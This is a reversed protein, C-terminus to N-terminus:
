LKKLVAAVKADFLAEWEPAVLTDCDEQAAGPNRLQQATPTYYIYGNTYGAVFTARHPSAKKVRLGIEVTLEGPFTVLVFDGVRLGAVEVELPKGGAARNTAQHKRLLALNTQVRTLDEMTMVNEVYARLNRRNEEDLKLLDARGQAKETLYLHSSYSPFEASLNYKGALELFTRLNLSTGKLSRLLRGQEAALADIRGAHDARPLPLKENLVALPAAACRITRVARLVSLGLMTGLPEASRPQHVDKYRVPNVDGGCGQVFLAVAGGGLTDEVVRSAFGTLDATNGGGPVGMIPHCAFNYVVALPHGDAKDLRLVGVQPDIPGVGAVADDPPLAYAHRVDAEKGSQLKLRRNESVRTETATGVGATVPVLGAVAAKVAQVTKEDVDACVVGHCHSANVIVGEPAIGFEQRLRARVKGLYDNGISGIEGVAVADLTVLVVTTDGSKLVLAKVYLPDSFPLSQKNTIEVKAVGARLHGAAPAAAPQKVAPTAAPPQPEGCGLLALTLCLPLAPRTM